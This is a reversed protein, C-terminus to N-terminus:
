RQRDLGVTSGSGFGEGEQCVERLSETSTEVKSNSFEALVGPM